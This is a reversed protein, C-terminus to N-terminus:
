RANKDYDVLGAIYDLSVGYFRALRIAVDFPLTYEGSEWRCYQKQSTGLIYAVDRQRLLRDERLERVRPFKMEKEGGFIIKHTRNYCM